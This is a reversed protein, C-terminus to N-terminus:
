WCRPAQTKLLAPLVQEPEGPMLTTELSGAAQLLSQADQLQQHAAPTDAGVMAVQPLCVRSCPAAPWRKWPANRRPAATTPWWLASPPSFQGTTAVLVPRRVARIVREVHHDLHIRSTLQRPLARGACVAARRTRVGAGTDVLEGHRLRGDLQQVGAATARERASALMQRGAEQAMKGRQEDLASLQQLLVEQAGPRHRRQLRGCPADRPASWCTCCNLPVELRLASWAAWDIM